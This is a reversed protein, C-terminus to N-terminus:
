GPVTWTGRLQWDTTAGGVMAAYLYINKTGAYAPKFTVAVTLTLSNGSLVVTSGAFDISCQSNEQTTESSIPAGAQWVGADDRLTLLGSAQEYRVMCVNAPGTLATSFRLYVHALDTVAAVGSYEAAFAETAGGGSGPTVSMASVEQVTWTGRQQWDTTLGGVTAAYLYINKAGTYGAKFTVAVDLRLTNGSLVASSGAFNISCQSNQQTTAGPIPAGELWAGADDRLALLGTAREYRVM